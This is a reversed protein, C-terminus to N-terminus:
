QYSLLRTLFSAEHHIHNDLENIQPLPFDGSLAFRVGMCVSLIIAFTATNAVIDNLDRRHKHARLVRVVDDMVLVGPLTLGIEKSLISFLLLICCLM